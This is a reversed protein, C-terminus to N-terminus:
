PHKELEVLGKPTTRHYTWGAVKFCYGPNPSDVAWPAIYTYLREGPWRDWAFREAALIMQSAVLRGAERRFVPCNIGRPVTHGIEVFRRWAFLSQEDPTLLLIYEGPGIIKKAGPNRKGFLNTSYHRVFLAAAVLNGDHVPVWVAKAQRRHATVRCKGSCYCPNRVRAALFQTGCISCIRAPM